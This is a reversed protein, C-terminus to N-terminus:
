RGSRLRKAAPRDVWPDTLAYSAIHPGRHGAILTCCLYGSAADHSNMRVKQCQPKGRSIDCGYRERQTRGSKLRVVDGIKINTM